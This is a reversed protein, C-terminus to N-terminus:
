YVICKIEDDNKEGNDDMFYVKSFNKESIEKPIGERTHYFFRPELVVKGRGEFFIVSKNAKSEMMMIYKTERPSLIEFNPNNIAYKRLTPTELESPFWQSPLAFFEIPIMVYLYGTEPLDIVKLDLVIKSQKISLDNGTKVFDVSSPYPKKNLNNNVNTDINLGNSRYKNM